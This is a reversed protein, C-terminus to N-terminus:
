NMWSPKPEDKLYYGYFEELKHTYDEQNQENSLVHEEGPYMLMWVPKNFRRLAMFFRIGESVNVIGDNENAMLLMPSTVNQIDFIPSNKIYLDPREWLSYGIRNQGMESLYAFVNEGSGKSISGASSIMDAFGSTSVAAAFRKSHTVIYNTEYSGFSHGDLGMKTTDVFTYTALKNAAGEISRLASPGPEAKRTNIDPSFVLYGRSVFWVVDIDGASLGPISYIHLRDSLREYYHIIVPYKKNADFNEPKYLLGQLSEGDTAKFDVLECTLWNYNKEPYNHSVPTFHKFDNTIYLNRMSDMRERSVLWVNAGKAKIPEGSNFVVHDPFGYSHDSMSLEIPDEFNKRSIRYFGNQKSTNNFALLLNIDNVSYVETQIKFAFRFSIKNRKGFGNTLCVPRDLNAPNFLWIDYNDYALIKNNNLWGAFKWRQRDDYVKDEQNEFSQVIKTFCVMQKEDIMYLNLDPANKKNTILFNGDPSISILSSEMIIKESTHINLLYQKLQSNKNWMRELGSGAIEKLRYYQDHQDNIVSASQNIYEIRILKKKSLDLYFQFSARPNIKASKLCVDTGSWIVAREKNPESKKSTLTLVLGNEESTFRSINSINFVSDQYVINRPMAILSASNSLSKYYLSDATLYSVKLDEQSVAINEFENGRSIEREKFNILDLWKLTKNNENNTIVILQSAKHMKTESVIKDVTFQKGSLLYKFHLSQNLDIYKLLDKNDVDLLEFSQVNKIEEYNVTNLSHIRLINHGDLIAVKEEHNTFANATAGEFLKDQNTALSRLVLTFDDKGSTRLQYSVYKGSNNIAGDTIFPWSKQAHHDVIPKSLNSQGYIKFVICSLYLCVVIGKRM